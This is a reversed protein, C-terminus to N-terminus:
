LFEWGGGNPAFHLCFLWNEVSNLSSLQFAISVEKFHFITTPWLLNGTSLARYSSLLFVMVIVSSDLSPSWSFCFGPLLFPLPYVDKANPLPHIARSQTSGLLLLLLLLIGYIQHLINFYIGRGVQCAIKYMIIIRVKIVNVTVPQGSGQRMITALRGRRNTTIHNGNLEDLIDGM